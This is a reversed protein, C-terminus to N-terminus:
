GKAFQFARNWYKAVCPKNERSFHISHTTHDGTSYDEEPYTSFWTRPTAVACPYESAEPHERMLDVLERFTYPQAEFDFGREEADGLAASEHSVIEFTRSVLITM